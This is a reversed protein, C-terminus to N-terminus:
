NIVTVPKFLLMVSVPKDRFHVPQDNQNNIRITITSRPGNHVTVWAYNSPQYRVIQGISAGCQDFAARIDGTVVYDNKIIDCRVIYSSTPHVFPEPSRLRM